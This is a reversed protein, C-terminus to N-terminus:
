EFSSPDSVGAPWGLGAASKTTSDAPPPENVIAGLDAGSLFVVTLNAGACPQATKGSASSFAVPVGRTLGSEYEFTPPRTSPWMCQIVNSYKPPFKWQPCGQCGYPM